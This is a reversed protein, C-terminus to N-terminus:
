LVATARLDPRHEGRGDKKEFLASRETPRNSFLPAVAIFLPVM